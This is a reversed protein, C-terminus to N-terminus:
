EVARIKEVLDVLEPDTLKDYFSQAAAIFSSKDPRIVELGKSQMEALQAECDQRWLEKQFEVAERFASVLWDREEQTLKEWSKRSMMIVDPVATHENLTYYKVAEYQRSTYLSPVNNEAGDVVGNQLSTYLEGWEIVTPTCGLSALVAIMTESNIARIKLGKLDEAKEVRKGARTYFSRFGADFYCIGKLNNELAVDLFQQGIEGELVKWYHADDRFLYPFSFLRSKPQFQEIAAMSVKTLDLTGIRM